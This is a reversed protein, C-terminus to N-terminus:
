AQFECFLRIHRCSACTKKSPGLGSYVFAHLCLVLFAVPLMIDAGAFVMMTAYKGTLTCAIGPMSAIACRDHFHKECHFPAMLSALMSVHCALVLTGAAAALVEVRYRLTGKKSLSDCCHLADPM